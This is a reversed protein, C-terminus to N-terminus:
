HKRFYLHHICDLRETKRQKLMIVGNRASTKCKDLFRNGGQSALQFAALSGTPTGGDCVPVLPVAFSGM